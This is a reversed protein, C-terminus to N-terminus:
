SGGTVRGDVLARFSAEAVPLWDPLHRTAYLLEHCAQVVEFPAVLADALLDQRGHIGLTREYAQRCTARAGGIWGDVAADNLRDDRRQALRAAHDLSRLLSALDRAPPAFPTPWAPDASTDGDLDTLYLGGSATLVQGVHLDGHIRSMRVTGPDRGAVLLPDLGRRLEAARARLHDGIPGTVETTAADLTAVAFAHWARHDEASAESSPDPMSPSPTAMAVHFRAVLGGLEALPSRVADDTLEGRLSAGALDRFRGWGEQAGGLYRSATALVVSDGQGDWRLEGILPPIQDFGVAELHRALEATRVTATPRRLLKVLVDGSALSLNAHDTSVQREEGPSAAGGTWSAAFPAAVRAAQWWRLLAAVSGDGARAQRLSAGDTVVLEPHIGDLDRVVLLSADTGDTGAGLSLVGIVEADLPAAAHWARSVRDDLRAAANM